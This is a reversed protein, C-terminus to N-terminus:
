DLDQLEKFNKMYNIADKFNNFIVHASELVFAHKHINDDDMIVVCHKGKDFGWALEMCTGISVTDKCNLFNLFLIDCQDVMWCDRSLIARNTSLPINEHGLPTLVEGDKYYQRKGILPNLVFFGFKKLKKATGVFYNHIEKYELGTMSGALYVKLKM